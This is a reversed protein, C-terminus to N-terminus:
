FYESPLYKCIENNSVGPNAAKVENHYNQRYLIFCNPPRPIKASSAPLQQAIQDNDVAIESSAIETSAMETSDSETSSTESTSMSSTSASGKSGPFLRFCEM